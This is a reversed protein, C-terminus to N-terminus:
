IRSYLIWYKKEFGSLIKDVARKLEDFGAFSRAFKAFMIDYIEGLTSKGTCYLLLEYELPSLVDRGVAPYGREFDLAMWVAMVRQPRFSSREFKQPGAGGAIGTDATRQAAGRSIITFYNYILPDPSFIRGYFITDIGHQEHLRFHALATEFKISKSNHVKLM